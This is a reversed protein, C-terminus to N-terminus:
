WRKHIEYHHYAWSTLLFLAICILLLISKLRTLIPTFIYESLIFVNLYCYVILFVTAISESVHACHKAKITRSIKARIVDYTKYDIWKAAPFILKKDVFQGFFFLVMGGIIASIIPIHTVLFPPALITELMLTM